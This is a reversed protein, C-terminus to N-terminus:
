KVMLAVVLEVLSSSRRAFSMELAYKPFKETFGNDKLELKARLYLKFYYIFLVKHGQVKILENRIWKTDM